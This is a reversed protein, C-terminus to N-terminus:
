KWVQDIAYGTGAGAVSGAVVLVAIGVPGTGVGLAVLGAVALSSATFTAGGKVVAKVPPTGSAVDLGVGVAALAGNSVSVSGVLSNLGPTAPEVYTGLGYTLPGRAARTAIYMSARVSQTRGKVEDLYTETDTSLTFISKGASFPRTKSFLADLFTQHVKLAAALATHAAQERLRAASVLATVEGSPGSLAPNALPMPFQIATATVRAGTSRALDKADAMANKVATIEDAFAHVATSYDTAVHNFQDADDRQRALKDRFVDGAAGRWGSESQRASATLDEALTAEAHALRSFWAAAAYLQSTDGDVIVSLSHAGGSAAPFNPLGTPQKV